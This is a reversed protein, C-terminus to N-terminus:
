RIGEEVRAPVCEDCLWGSMFGDHGEDPDYEAMGFTLDNGCVPCDPTQYWYIEIEFEKVPYKYGGHHKGDRAYPRLFLMRLEDADEDQSLFGRSGDSFLFMPYNLGWEEVVGTLSHRNTEVHVDVRCAPDAHRHKMEDRLEKSQEKSFGHGSNEGFNIVTKQQYDSRRM